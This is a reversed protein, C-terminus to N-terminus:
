PKRIRASAVGIGVWALLSAGLPEPITYISQLVFGRHRFFDLELSAVNTFDVGSFESFPIIAVRGNYYDDLSVSDFGVIGGIATTVTFRNCCSPIVDFDFVFRDHGEATLDVGLPATRSGYILELGALAPFPAATLTLFSEATNIELIQGNSYNEGLVLDRQGGLVHAPDLGTQTLPVAVGANRMLQVPGVTFDDIVIAHTFPASCFGFTLAAVISTMRM